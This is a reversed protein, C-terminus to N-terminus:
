RWGHQNEERWLRRISSLQRFLGKALFLALGGIVLVLFLFGFALLM